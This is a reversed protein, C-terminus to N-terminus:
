VVREIKDYMVVFDGFNWDMHYHGCYWKGFELGNNYLENFYDNLKDVEYDGRSGYIATLMFTPLCHSIVFDVKYDVKALNDIGCIMEEKSPLEEEWWSIGKVRFRSFPDKILTMYKREFLPDEPDLVGDQIDHSSAGGFAFFKKDDFDFVYGRMLHYINDSIKHARGGHFDIEPFEHNLRYHNEHNGCVFCVTAPFSNYFKILKKEMEDPQRSWIVGFDGLIILYDNRTLENWEYHSNYAFNEQKLKAYDIDAHCDGTLFVM